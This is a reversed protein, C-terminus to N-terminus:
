LKEAGASTLWTALESSIPELFKITKYAENTWAADDLYNDRGSFTFVILDDYAISYTLIDVRGNWESTMYASIASFTRGNSCFSATFSISDGVETLTAKDQVFKYSDYSIDAVAREIMSGNDAILFLSSAGDSVSTRATYGSGIEITRGYFGGDVLDASQWVKVLGDVNGILTYVGGIYDLGVVTMEEDTVKLSRLAANATNFNSSYHIFTGNEGSTVFVAYDNLKRVIKAGNLLASRDAYSYSSTDFDHLVVLGNGTVALAKTTSFACGSVFPTAINTAFGHSAYSTGTILWMMGGTYADTRAGVAVLKGNSADIPFIENPCFGTSDAYNISTSTSKFDAVTQRLLIRNSYGGANVAIWVNTGDTAIGNVPYNRNTGIRTVTISGTPTGYFKWCDGSSDNGVGLIYGDYYTVAKVTIAGTATTLTPSLVKDMNSLWQAAVPKSLGRIANPFNDAVYTTGTEGRVERIASAVNSFLSSLTTHVNSM